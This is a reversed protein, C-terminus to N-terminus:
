VTYRPQSDSDLGYRPGSHSTIAHLALVSLLVATVRDQVGVADEIAVQGFAALAAAVADQVVAQEVVRQGIGVLVQVQDVVVVSETLTALIALLSTVLDTMSVTDSLQPLLATLVAVVDTATATETITRVLDQSLLAQVQDTVTAQDTVTVLIATLSVLQDQVAVQESVSLLIAVLTSTLDAVTVTELVTAALGGSETLQVTLQESVAVLEDALTSGLAIVLEERVTATETLARVVGVLRTVADQVVAQETLSRQVGILGAIEDQVAVQETLSRLIALLSVVTDQVTTNETVDRLIAVLVTVVDQVIAQETLAAELDAGVLSVNLQDAVQVTEQVNRLIALLTSAADEVSAGESLSRLVGILRAVSDQVQAQDTLRQGKGVPGFVDQGGVGEQLSIGIEGLSSLTDQGTVTETLQVTLDGGGAATWAAADSTWTYGQLDLDDADSVAEATAAGAGEDLPWFVVIGTDDTAPQAAKLADTSFETPDSYVAVGGFSCPHETGHDRYSRGVTMVGLGAGSNATGAGYGLQQAGLETGDAEYLGIFMDEDSTQEGYLVYLTTSSLASRALAGVEPGDRTGGLGVQFKITVTTTGGQVFFWYRQNPNSASGVSIAALGTEEGDAVNLIASGRFQVKFAIPTLSELSSLSAGTEAIGPTTDDLDLRYPM